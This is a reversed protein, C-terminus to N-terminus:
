HRAADGGGPDRGRRRRRGKQRRRRVLVHDSVHVRHVCAEYAPAETFDGVRESRKKFIGGRCICACVM